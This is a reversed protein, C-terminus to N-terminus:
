VELVILKHQSPLTDCTGGGLCRASIYLVRRLLGWDARVELVTCYFFTELASFSMLLPSVQLLLMVALSPCWAAGGSLCPVLAQLAQPKTSESSPSRM